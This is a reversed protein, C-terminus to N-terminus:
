YLIASQTVDFLIIIYETISFAHNFLCYIFVFTLIPCKSFYIMFAKFAKFYPVLSPPLLVTPGMMHVFSSTSCLALSFVSMRYLIFRLFAFQMPLM